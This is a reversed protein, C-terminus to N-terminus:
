SDLVSQIEDDLRRHLALNEDRDTRVEILASAGDRTSAQYTEAFDEPSDAVHHNLGFQRAAAEFDMGHPTGFYPEFVDTREAVPLFHFIGGGNNNIVVVIVPHASKRLIALSNLDHLLALDGILLTAPASLGNAFGTACAVTGDIGSVGRNAAVRISGPRVRAYRNVDRVPMSSAVFLGQGSPVNAAVHRAIWPESITDAGASFSDLYDAVNRNAQQWRSLWATASLADVKAMMQECFLQINAELRYTVQHQPDHRDPHDAVQLYSSPRMEGLNKSVVRGGLHLVTDVEDLLEKLSDFYPILLESEGNLRLGSTIDPLMPWGLHDAFRLAAQSTASDNLGGVVVIGQKAAGLEAAIEDLAQASSVVASDAYTTWPGEGEREWTTKSASLPERFMANVHVPGAPASRARYCAQDVTTLVFSVPIEHTPCPLDVAWRVYPDFLGPQVMTQNADTARLEPPRDATLVIMPVRDQASEIVAPLLNAVATGSTTVIAAPQGTARAMGLAFFGVGREDFHGYTRAAPHRAIAEVLPTCRSGPALCFHEVGNRILEDVIAASWTANPHNENRKM